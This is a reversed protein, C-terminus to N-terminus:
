QVWPESEELADRARQELGAYEPSGVPAYSFSEDNWATGSVTMNASGGIAGLPGVLLKLHMSAGAIRKIRLNAAGRTGTRVSSLFKMVNEEGQARSADVCVTLEFGLECLHALLDSLMRLRGAPPHLAELASTMRSSLASDDLPVDRIDYYILTIRRRSPPLLNTAALFASTLLHYSTLLGLGYSLAVGPSGSTLELGTVDGTRILLVPEAAPEARSAEIGLTVPLSVGRIRSGRRLTSLRNQVGVRPSSRGSALDAPLIRQYNPVQVVSASYWEDLLAKDVYSSGQIQGLLLNDTLVCEPCGNWCTTTARYVDDAPLGADRAIAEYARHLLPLRWADAPGALGLRKWTAASVRQIEKAHAEVYAYAPLGQDAAGRQLADLDTHFQPCQLLEQELVSLFDETPLLSGERGTLRQLQLIHAFTKVLEATGNGHIDRDFMYVRYTGQDLAGLDPYYGLREEPTGAFRQLAQTAVVGFTNLLTFRAWGRVSEDLGDLYGALRGFLAEVALLEESTAEPELLDGALVANQAEVNRVQRVFGSVLQRLSSPDAALRRMSAALEDVSASDRRRSSEYAVLRIVQDLQFPDVPQDDREAAALLHAALAKLGSPAWRKGEHLIGNAARSCVEDARDKRLIFSVGETDFTQGLGVPAGAIRYRLSVGSSGRTSFGRSVAHIFETVHLSRHYAMDSLVAAAFPHRVDSLDGGAQPQGTAQDLRLEAGPQAFLSVAEATAEEVHLWSEGFSSPIKVRRQSDGGARQAEDGDRARGDHNIQIYKDSVWQVSIEVPRLIDIRDPAWPPGPVGRKEIQFTHRHDANGDLTGVLGSTEVQLTGSKVKYPRHGLRYTWTGPLFGFLAEGVSVKALERGSGQNSFTQRITVQREYPNSFLTPLHVHFGQRKMGKFVDLTGVVYSVYHMRHREREPLDEVQRWLFYPRLDEAEGLRQLGQWAERMDELARGIKRIARVHVENGGALGEASKEVAEFAVRTMCGSLLNSADALFNSTPEDLAQLSPLLGRLEAMGKRLEELAANAGDALRVQVKAQSTGNALIDSVTQLRDSRMFAPLPAALLQLELVVQALAAEQEAQSIVPGFVTRLHMMVRAHNAEAFELSQRIGLSFVYDPQGQSTIAEPMGGDMALLDWVALYAASGRLPANERKLPVPEVRGTRVLKQPQRYYHKDVPRQTLFSVILADTGEERGARGAKQRYSAINRIAKFLVEESVDAIDVGVELSPSAFVVDVPVETSGGAAEIDFVKSVPGRFVMDGLAEESESETGQEKSTHIVSRGSSAWDFRNTGTISASGLNPEPFWHCTGSRLFPCLDLTGVDLQEAEFVQSQIRYPVVADTSVHPFRTVLRGFDRVNARGVIQGMSIRKGGRCATCPDTEPSPLAMPLFPGETRDGSNTGGQTALRRSLPNLFRAAYPLERERPTWTSQDQSPPHQRGTLQETRENEKFDANWRGLAELNDAFCITKQRKAPAKPRRSVDDRRNHLLVSTANVLAGMSSLDSRPRLFVHHRLGVVELADPSPSLVGVDHAQKGFVKSAHDDPVAVTASVGVYQTQPTGITAAMRAILHIVNTGALGEVLHVEDFAVRSVRSRLARTFAPNLLRRNLTELTSVILDPAGADVYRKRIGQKVSDPAYSSAHEFHFTPRGIRISATLKEFENAQNRALATRPYLLIQTQGTGVMKAYVSSILVPVGFALTKGAGVDAVLVHHRRGANSGYTSCLMAKWSDVQFQSARFGTGKVKRVAQLVEAIAAHLGDLDRAGSEALAEELAKGADELPVNRAPVKKDEVLWRIAEISPRTGEWYEYGFGLLRVTEGLRTVYQQGGEGMRALQRNSLMWDMLSDLHEAEAPPLGALVEDKSWMTASVDRGTGIPGSIRASELEYIRRLCPIWQFQNRQLRITGDTM